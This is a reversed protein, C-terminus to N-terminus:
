NKVETITWVQNVVAANAAGTTNNAWLQFERTTLSTNSIVGEIFSSMVAQAVGSPILGASNTTSIDVGTPVVQRLRLNIFSGPNSPFGYFSVSVKITSNTSKPTFSKNTQTVNGITAPINGSGGDTFFRQQLVQGSVPKFVYPSLAEITKATADIQLADEAATGITVKTGDASATLKATM